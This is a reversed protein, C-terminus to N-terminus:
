GKKSRFPFPNVTPPLRSTHPHAATSSGAQSSGALGPSPGPGSKGAPVRSPLRNRATPGKAYQSSIDLDDPHGRTHSPTVIKVSIPPTSERSDPSYRSPAYRRISPNVDPAWPDLGEPSWEQAPSAQPSPLFGDSDSEEPPTLRIAAEMRRRKGMSVSSKRKKQSHAEQRPPDSTGPNGPALVQLEDDDAPQSPVTVVNASSMSMPCLPNKSQSGLKRRKGIVKQPSRPPPVSASSTTLSQAFALTSPM